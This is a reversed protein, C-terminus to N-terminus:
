HMLHCGARGCRAAGKLVKERLADHLAILRDMESKCLDIVRNACKESNTGSYVLGGELLAVVAGFTNLNTHLHTLHVLTQKNM